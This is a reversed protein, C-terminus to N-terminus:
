VRLRNEIDLRAAEVMKDHEEKSANHRLVNVQNFPNEPSKKKIKM